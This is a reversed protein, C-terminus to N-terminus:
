LLGNISYAKSIPQTWFLKEMVIMYSNSKGGEKLERVGKKKVFIDKPFRLRFVNPNRLGFIPFPIKTLNAPHTLIPLPPFLLLGIINIRTPYLVFNTCAQNITLKASDRYLVTTKPFIWVKSCPTVDHNHSFWLMIRPKIFDRDKQLRTFSVVFEFM